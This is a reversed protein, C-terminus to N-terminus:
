LPEVGPDYQGSKIAAVFARWEDADVIIQDGSRRSSRILVSGDYDPHPAVEVCNTDGCGSPRQWGTV